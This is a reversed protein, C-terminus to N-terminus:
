RFKEWKLKIFKNEFSKFEPKPNGALPNGLVDCVIAKVGNLVPSSFDFAAQRGATERMQLLVANEEELPKINVLLLDPPKIELLSAPQLADAKENGAPLTRVLLPIRNGWAFKTAFSLSNDSGSSINYSWKL